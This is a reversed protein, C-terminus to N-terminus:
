GLYLGDRLGDRVWPAPINVLLQGVYIVWNQLYVLVMTRMHTIKTIKCKVMM